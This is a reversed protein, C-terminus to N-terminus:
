LIPPRYLKTSAHDALQRYIASSCRSILASPKSFSAMTAPLGSLCAAGCCQGNSSKHHDASSGTQDKISASLKTSATSYSTSSINSSSYELGNEMVAPDVRQPHHHAVSNDGHVHASGSTYDDHTSRFSSLTVGSFANAVSPALVCLMYVLALMAGASSRGVRTLRTLM